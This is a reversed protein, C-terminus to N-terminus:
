VVETAVSLKFLVLQQFIRQCNHLYSCDAAQVIGGEGRNAVRIM